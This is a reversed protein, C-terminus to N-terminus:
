AGSVPSHFAQAIEPDSRKVMSGIERLVFYSASELTMWNRAEAQTHFHGIKELPRNTWWAEVFWGSRDECPRVSLYPRTFQAPPVPPMSPEM